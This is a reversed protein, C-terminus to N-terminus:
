QTIIGNESTDVTWNGYYAQGFVPLTALMAMLLVRMIGEDSWRPAM